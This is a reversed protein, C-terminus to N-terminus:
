SAWQALRELDDDDDDKSKKVKGIKVTPAKPLVPIEVLKEELAREELAELELELEDEDIDDDFGVPNGIANSIENVLEQQDAISDMINNVEEVNISVHTKKLATAANQMTKLLTTNTTALELAERQMEITTLTNDIQQLQKEYRKKRRLSQLAASKNKSANKVLSVKEKEIKSELYEQKKFLMFEMEHLKQIADSTTLAPKKGVLKDLFNM